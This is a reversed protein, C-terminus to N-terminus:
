FEFMSFVTSPLKKCELTAVIYYIHVYNQVFWDYFKVQSSKTNKKMRELFIQTCYKFIFFFILLSIKCLIKLCIMDRTILNLAMVRKVYIFICLFCISM